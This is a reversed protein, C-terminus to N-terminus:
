AVSEQLVPFYPAGDGDPNCGPSQYIAWLFQPRTRIISVAKEKQRIARDVEDPMDERDFQAAYRIPDAAAQNTLPYRM